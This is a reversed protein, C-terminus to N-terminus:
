EGTKREQQTEVSVKLSPFLREILVPGDSRHENLKNGTM